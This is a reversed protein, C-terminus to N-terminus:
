KNTKTVKVYEVSVDVASGTDADVLFGLGFNRGPQKTFAGLEFSSKVEPQGTTQIREDDFWVEWVGKAHDKRVFRVTHFEDMPWERPNGAADKLPIEVIQDKAKGGGGVVWLTMVGNRDCGLGLEAGSARNRGGSQQTTGRPVLPAGTTFLHVVGEVGKQMKISTEVVKVRGLDESRSVRTAMERQEPTSRVQTAGFVLRDDSVSANIGHAGDKSDDWGNGVQTSNPRNFEDLWVRTNDWEDLISKVAALWEKAADDLTALRARSIDRNVEDIPRKGLFRAWGLLGVLRGDTRAFGAKVETAEELVKIAEDIRGSLVLVRAFEYLFEKNDQEKACARRLYTAAKEWDPTDLSAASRGVLWLGENCGPAVELLKLGLKMAQDAQGDRLRLTGARLLMWPDSPSRGLATEYYANSRDTESKRQFVEGLGFLPDVLNLPDGDLCAQFEKAAMDLEGAALLAFGRNSRWVSAVEDEKAAGFATAAENYKGQVYLLSGLVQNLEPSPEKKAEQAFSAATQFDGQRIAIRALALNARPGVTANSAVAKLTETAQALEGEREFMLGVRLRAEPDGTKAAKEYLARAQAWCGIRQFADGVLLQAATESPHAKMYEIYTRAVGDLDFAARYYSGLTRILDNDASIAKAKELVEIAKRVAGLGFEVGDEGSKKSLEEFCWKAFAVLAERDGDKVGRTIREEHFSNDLTPKLRVTKYSQIEEAGVDTKGFTKGEKNLWHIKFTVNPWKELIVWDPQGKFAGTLELIVPEEGGGRVVKAAKEPDFKKDKNFLEAEAPADPQGGAPAEAAAPNEDAKEKEADKPKPIPVIANRLKRWAEASPGPRPIPRVWQLALAAPAPIEPLPPRKEPRVVAWPARGTLPDKSLGTVPDPRRTEVLPVPAGQSLDKAGVETYKGSASWVLLAGVTAAVVLLIQEKRV